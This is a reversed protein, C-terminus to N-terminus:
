LYNLFSVKRADLIFTVSIISVLSNKIVGGSVHTQPFFVVESEFKFKGPSHSIPIPQTMFETTLQVM